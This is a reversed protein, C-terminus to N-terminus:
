EKPVMGRLARPLGVPAPAREQFPNHAKNLVADIRIVLPRITPVNFVTQKRGWYVNYIKNGAGNNLELSGGIGAGTYVYVWDGPSLVANGFWFFNDQLPLSNGGPVDVGVLLAFSAMDTYQAVRVVVRELNPIGADYVGWLELETLQGQMM